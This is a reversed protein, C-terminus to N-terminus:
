KEESADNHDAMNPIKKRGSDPISLEPQIMAQFDATGVIGKTQHLQKHRQLTQVLPNLPLIPRSELM